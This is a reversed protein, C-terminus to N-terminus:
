TSKVKFHLPSSISHYGIRHHNIRDIYHKSICLGCVGTERLTEVTSNLALAVAWTFDYAPNRYSSGYPWVGNFHRLFREDFERNSKGSITETDPDANSLGPGYFLAYQLVDLVEDETCTTVDAAVTTWDNELWNPLNIIVHPGFHNQRYM